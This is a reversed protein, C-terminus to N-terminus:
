HLRHILEKVGRGGPGSAAGMIWTPGGGAAEAEGSSLVSLAGGAVTSAQRVRKGQTLLTGYFYCFCEQQKDRVNKMGSNEYLGM